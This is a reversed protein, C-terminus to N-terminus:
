LDDALTASKATINPLDPQIKVTEIQSALRDFMQLPNIIFTNLSSICDGM